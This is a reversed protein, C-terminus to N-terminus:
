ESDQLGTKSFAHALIVNRVAETELAIRERLDQDLVANKFRKAFEDSGSCRDDLSTAVCVIEDSDIRIDFSYRDTFVYAARKVSELSFVDTAFRIVLSGHPVQAM